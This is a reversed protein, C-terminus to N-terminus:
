CMSTNAKYLSQSGYSTTNQHEQACSKASLSSFLLAPNLFDFWSQEQKRKDRIEKLVKKNFDTIECKATSNNALWQELNEFQSKEKEIEQSSRVDDLLPNVPTAYFVYQGEQNTKVKEFSLFGPQVLFESEGPYHSYKEISKGVTNKLIIKSKTAFGDSIYKKDTFSTFAPSMHLNNKKNAKSLREQLEEISVGNEGRYSETSKSTSHIKNLASSLMLCHLFAKKARNQIDYGLSQIDNNSLKGYLLNNTDYYQSGTYDTIASIEGKNLNDINDSPMNYPASYKRSYTDGDDNNLSIHQLNATKLLKSINFIQNAIKIHLQQSKSDAVKMFFFTANQDNCLLAKGLLELTQTAINKNLPGHYWESM